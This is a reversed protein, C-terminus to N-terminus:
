ERCDPHMLALNHRRRLIPPEDPWDRWRLMFLDDGKDEAIVAPWWGEDPGEIALVVRGTKIQDWDQAPMPKPITATQTAGKVGATAPKDDSKSAPTEPATTNIPKPLPDPAHKALQDFLSGKVFPVFARGSAFVRGEPLQRALGRLEDNTVPVAAMGMLGAAKTALSADGDDFWSAHPKGTNDRGLVILAAASAAPDQSPFTALATM